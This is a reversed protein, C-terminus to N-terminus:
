IWSVSIDCYGKSDCSRPKGSLICANSGRQIESILNSSADLTCFNLFLKSVLAMQGIYSDVCCQVADVYDEFLEDNKHLYPKCQPHSKRTKGMTKHLAHVIKRIREVEGKVYQKNLELVSNFTDSYIVNIASTTEQKFITKIKKLVPSQIEHSESSSSSSHQPKSGSISFTL